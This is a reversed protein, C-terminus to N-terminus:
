TTPIPTTLFYFIVCVCVCVLGLMGFVFLIEFVAWRQDASDWLRGYLLGNNTPKATAYYFKTAVLQLNNHRYYRFPRNMIPFSDHNNFKTPKSYFIIIFNAMMNNTLALPFCLNVCCYAILWLIDCLM